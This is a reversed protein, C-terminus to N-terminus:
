VDDGEGDDDRELVDRLLCWRCHDGHAELEARSFHAMWGCSRCSMIFLRDAGFTSQSTRNLIAVSDIKQSIRNEDSAFANGKSRVSAPTDYDCM